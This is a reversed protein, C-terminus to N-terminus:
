YSENDMCPKAANQIPNRSYDCLACSLYEINGQGKWTNRLPPGWRVVAHPHDQKAFIELETLVVFSIVLLIYSMTPCAQHHMAFNFSNLSNSRPASVFHHIIYIYIYLCIYIVPSVTQCTHPESM